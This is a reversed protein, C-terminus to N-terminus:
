RERKICSSYSSTILDRFTSIEKWHNYLFGLCSSYADLNSWISLLEFFTWRCLSFYFDPDYTQLFLLRLAPFASLLSYALPWQLDTFLFYQGCYFLLNFFFILFPCLNSFYLYKVVSIEYRAFTSLSSAARNVWKFRRTIWVLTWSSYFLNLLKQTPRIYLLSCSDSRTTYTLSEM